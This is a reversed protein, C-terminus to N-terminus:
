TFSFSYFLVVTFVFAHLFHHRVQITFSVIANPDIPEKTSDSGSQGSNSSGGDSGTGSNGGTNSTDSSGGGITSNDAYKQSDKIAKEVTFVVDFVWMVRLVICGIALTGLNQVYVNIEQMNLSELSKIGLKAM